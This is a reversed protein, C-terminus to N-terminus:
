NVHLQLLGTSLHQELAKCLETLAWVSCSFLDQRSDRQNERTKRVYSANQMDESSDTEQSNACEDEGAPLLKSWGRNRARMGGTKNRYMNKVYFGM